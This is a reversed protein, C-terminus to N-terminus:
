SAEETQICSGSVSSRSVPDHFLELRLTDVSGANDISYTEREGRERQIVGRNIRFREVKM